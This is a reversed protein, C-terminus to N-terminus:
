YTRVTLGHRLRGPLHEVRFALFLQAAALSYQCRHLLLDLIIFSSSPVGPFSVHALLVDASL